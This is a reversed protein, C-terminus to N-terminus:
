PLVPPAPPLPAIGLMRELCALGQAAAGRGLNDIAALVVALGPEDLHLALDCFGTGRVHRLEPTGQRLRLLPHPAIADVFISTADADPDVPVFSTAFIGRDWPGSVPVFSLAPAEGLTGLFSRVEPVHQHSLVKYARVNAFREPHHTGSSPTAGSGTSGTMATVHVPGNVVGAAVFPAISLSLASAFCGPVAVRSAGDLGEAYELLGYVWGPAHRHDASLDLVRPAHDLQSALGKAVGHPTALAVVDLGALAQPDFDQVVLDTLGLLGPQVQDLRKGVASRGVVAALELSPHQLVWRALEAGVYGTVGVIGVKATM